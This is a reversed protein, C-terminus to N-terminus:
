AAEPTKERGGLLGRLEEMQLDNETKQKTLAPLILPQLSDFLGEGGQHMAEQIIGSLKARHDLLIEYIERHTSRILFSGGARM